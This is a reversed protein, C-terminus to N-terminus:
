TLTLTLALALALTLALALALNPNARVRVVLREQRQQRQRQKEAHLQWERVFEQDERETSGADEDTTLPPESEDEAGEEYWGTLAAPVWSAEKKARGAKASRQLDREKRSLLARWSEMM